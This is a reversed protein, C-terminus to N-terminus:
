KIQQGDCYIEATHYDHNQILDSVAWGISFCHAQCRPKDLVYYKISPHERSMSIATQRAMELSKKTKM